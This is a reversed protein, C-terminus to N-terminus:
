VKGLVYLEELTPTESGGEPELTIAFALAEGTRKGIFLKQDNSEYKDLVGADVPTLPALSVMRWLQYVKGAPPEPLAAIDVYVNQTAENWFVVAEADPVKGVSALVITKTDKKRIEAFQSKTLEYKGKLDENDQAFIRQQEEAEELNVQVLKQAQYQYINYALSAAFLIWGFACLLKSQSNGANNIPPNTVISEQGINLINKELTTSIRPAHLSSYTILAKELREVEAKIEHNENVLKTIGIMKGEPLVGAVYLELIGDDINDISIM